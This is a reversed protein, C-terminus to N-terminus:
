NKENFPISIPSWNKNNVYKSLKSNCIIYKTQYFKALNKGEIRFRGYPWFYKKQQKWLEKAKGSFEPAQTMPSRKKNLTIRKHYILM